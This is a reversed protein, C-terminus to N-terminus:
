AAHLSVVRLSFREVDDVAGGTEEVISEDPGHELVLERPGVAVLAVESHEQDLSIADTRGFLCELRHSRSEGAGHAIDVRWSDEPARRGLQKGDEGVRIDGPRRVGGIADERGDILRQADLTTM